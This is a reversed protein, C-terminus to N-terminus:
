LGEFPPPPEDEVLVECKEFYNRLHILMNFNEMEFPLMPLNLEKIINEIILIALDENDHELVEIWMEFIKIHMKQEGTIKHISFYETSKDFFSMHIIKDVSNRDTTARSWEFVIDSSKIKFNKDIGYYYRGQDPDIEVQFIGTKVCTRKKPIYVSALRKSQNISGM